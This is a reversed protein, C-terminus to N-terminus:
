QLSLLVLIDGEGNALPELAKGVLTGPRHIKTGAVDIPDSYMAMGPKDSTALLDGRRIPHRTADVHVKVRGTTAIKAKSESAVGLIIGPQGSVVGAVATDYARASPMVEDSNDASVIVVTGPSMRTRVPVWEAVDQYKAGIDGDVVVSGHVTLRPTQDPPAGAAPAQGIIVAGGGDPRIVVNNMNTFQAGQPLASQVSWVFGAASQALWGDYEVTFNPFYWPTSLDGIRVVVRNAGGVPETTIEVPLNTGSTTCAKNV